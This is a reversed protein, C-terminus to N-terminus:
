RPRHPRMHRVRVSSMEREKRRSAPAAKLKVSIFPNTKEKFVVLPGGIGWGSKRGKQFVFTRTTRGSAAASGGRRIRKRSKYVRKRDRHLDYQAKKLETNYTKSTTYPMILRRTGDAHRAASRPPARAARRQGRRCAAAPSRAASAAAVLRRRAAAPALRLASSLAQSLKHGAHRRPRRLPLLEDLVFCMGRIDEAAPEGFARDTAARRVRLVGCTARRRAAHPARRRWGM